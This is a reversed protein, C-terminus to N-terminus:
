WVLHAYVGLQPAVFAIVMGMPARQVFSPFWSHLPVVAARIAVGVAIPLVAARAMGLTALIAGASGLAVSPVHYAAFARAAPRTEPRARLERWAVTATAAWLVALGVPERTLVLAMSAANVILIRGFTGPRAIEVPSMAIATLGIASVFIPLVAPWGPPPPILALATHSLPDASPLASWALALASAALAIVMAVAGRARAETAVTPRSVWAAAFLPAGLA